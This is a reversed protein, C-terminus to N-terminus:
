TRAPLAPIVNKIIKKLDPMVGIPDRSSVGNAKNSLIARMQKPGLRSKHSAEVINQVAMAVGAIIAAAGSTANFRRTYPNLPDKSATFLNAGSAFCDVRNGFNSSTRKLPQKSNTAAAVVIAGSDRFDPSNRDLIRQNKRNTFGDLTHGIGSFLSGNGAPEIVIIGKTTALEIVDFTVPQTEVPWLRGTPDDEKVQAELLLIDGFHLTHIAKMIADNIVNHGQRSMQSILKVKARPTIGVGGLKNDQMLLIGLVGIGHEFGDANNASGSVLKVGAGKLDEHKLFWGPEIDILQVRGEGRGGKVTWAFKADVGTPAADLYRQRGIMPNAKKVSTMAPPVVESEIYANDVAENGLLLSVLKKTDIGDPCDIACYTLFNPAKYQARDEPRSREVIKKVHKVIQDSGSSAFLRVIKIGPFQQVLQNWSILNSKKFYAQLERNDRYPLNLPDKFKIIIRPHSLISNAM